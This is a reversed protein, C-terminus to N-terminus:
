ELVNQEFSSIIRSAQTLQLDAQVVLMINQALIRGTDTLEVFRYKEGNVKTEQQNVLGLLQLKQLYDRVSDKKRGIVDTLRRVDSLGGIIVLFIKLEIENLTSSTRNYIPNYM